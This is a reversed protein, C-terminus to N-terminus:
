PMDGDMEVAPVGALGMRKGIGGVSFLETIVECESLLKFLGSNFEPNEKGGFSAPNMVRPRPFRPALTSM